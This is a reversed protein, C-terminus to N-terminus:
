QRKRLSDWTMPGLLGTVPLDNAGQYERVKEETQPGFNGDRDRFPLNLMRQIAYVNHWSRAGESGNWIEPDTNDRGFFSGVNLPYTSGMRAPYTSLGRWYPADFAEAKTLGDTPQVHWWEKAVTFALGAAQVIEERDQLRTGDKWEADAANRFEHWSRGPVAALPGDGALYRDYLRQQEARSRYGSNVHIGVGQRRSADELRRLLEIRVGYLDGTLM